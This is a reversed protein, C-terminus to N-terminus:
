KLNFSNVFENYFGGFREKGDKTALLSEYVSPTTFLKVDSLAHEFMSVGLDEMFTIAEANEKRRNRKNLFGKYKFPINKGKKYEDIEQVLKIFDRTSLAELNGAVIPILVVDCCTLAQVIISDANDDTMRPIDILIVDYKDRSLRIEDYLFKPHIAEVTYPSEEGEYADKQLQYYDYASRQSDTDILLVRKKGEVALATALLISITTKGVGGKRNAISIVTASM